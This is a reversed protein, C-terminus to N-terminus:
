GEAVYRIKGISSQVTSMRIELRWCTFSCLTLNDVNSIEWVAERVGSSKRIQKRIDNKIYCYYCKLSRLFM